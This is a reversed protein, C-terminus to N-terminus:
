ENLAELEVPDMPELKELIEIVESLSYIDAHDPTSYIGGQEDILMYPAEDFFDEDPERKVVRWGRVRAIEQLLALHLRSKLFQSKAQNDTM